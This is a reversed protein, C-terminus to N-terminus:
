PSCCRLACLLLLAGILQKNPLLSPPSRLKQAKSFLTVVVPTGRKGTNKITTCVSAAISSLAFSGQGPTIALTTYSLGAGFEWLPASSKKLYKYSRGDGAQFSMDKM